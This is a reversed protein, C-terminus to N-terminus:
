EIKGAVPFLRQFDAEERATEMRKLALFRDVSLASDKSLERLERTIEAITGGDDEDPGYLRVASCENTQQLAIM